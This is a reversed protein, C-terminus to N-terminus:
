VQSNVFSSLLMYQHNQLISFAIKLTKAADGHGPSSQSVSSLTGTPKDRAFLHAERAVEDEAHLKLQLPV